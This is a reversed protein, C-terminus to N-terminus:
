WTLTSCRGAKKNLVTSSLLCCLCTDEATPSLIFHLMIFSWSGTHWVCVSNGSGTGLNNQFSEVMTLHSGKGSSILGRSPPKTKNAQKDASHDLSCGFPLFPIIGVLYGPVCHLSVSVRLLLGLSKTEVDSDSSRCQLIWPLYSPTNLLQKRHHFLSCVM